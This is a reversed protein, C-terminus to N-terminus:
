WKEDDWKPPKSSFRNHKENHHWVCLVQLNDLELALDPYDEIEKIHDVDLRKHKDPDHQDTYVEGQRKCEQCEYNDRELAQLRLSKWESSKYFRMKQEYTKYEPM